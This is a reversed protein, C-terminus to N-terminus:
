LLKIVKQTVSSKGDRIQLILMGSATNGIHIYQTGNIAKVEGVVRGGM